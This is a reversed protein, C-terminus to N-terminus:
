YILTIEIVFRTIRDFNHLVASAEERTTLPPLDRILKAPSWFGFKDETTRAHRWELKEIQKFFDITKKNKHSQVSRTNAVTSNM